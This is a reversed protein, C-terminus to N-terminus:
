HILMRKASILPFIGLGSTNAHDSVDGEFMPPRDHFLGELNNGTRVIQTKGNPLGIQHVFRRRHAAQDFACAKARLLTLGNGAFRRIKDSGHPVVRLRGHHFAEEPFVAKRGLLTDREHAQGFREQAHGIRLRDIGQDLVLDRGPAPAGMEALGARRQDVGRGPSQHQGALHERREVLDAHDVGDLAHHFTEALRDHAGGDPLGHLFEAALEHEAPGDLLRGLAGGAHLFPAIGIGVVHQAFRGARVGVGLAVMEGIGVRDRRECWAAGGVVDAHVRADRDFQRREMRAVFEALAVPDHGFQDRPRAGERQERLRGIHAKLMSASSASRSSRESSAM